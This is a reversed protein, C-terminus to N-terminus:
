NDDREDEKNGKAKELNAKQMFASVSQFLDRPVKKIRDMIGYIQQQSLSSSKQIIDNKEKIREDFKNMNRTNLYEMITVNHLSAYKEIKKWYSNEIEELQNEKLREEGLYQASDRIYDFVNNDSSHVSIIGRKSNKRSGTFLFVDKDPLKKALIEVYSPLKEITASITICNISWQVEPRIVDTGSTKIHNKWLEILCEKASSNGIAFNEAIKEQQEQPLEFIFDSKITLFCQWDGVVQKNSLGELMKLTDSDSYDKHIKNRNLINHIFYELDEVSGVARQFNENGLVQWIKNTYKSILKEEEPTGKVEVLKQQFEQVIENLKNRDITFKEEENM